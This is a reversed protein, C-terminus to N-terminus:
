PPPFCDAMVPSVCQVFELFPHQLILVWIWPVRTCTCSGDVADYASVRKALVAASARKAVIPWVIMPRM